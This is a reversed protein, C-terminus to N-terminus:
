SLAAQIDGATVAPAQDLRLALDNYLTTAVMATTVTTQVFSVGYTGTGGTGTGLSTITTGSTVGSGQILQGVALAGRTVLSVALTSGTLTGLFAAAQGAVGIQIDIIQAWSGLLAVGAYYRSAFITSGIKARPGGDAGAFASIIAAQVLARANSPVGNNNNLVVQVALDVTDPIEFLVQYAPAPPLYEPSPDSVTEITNGNYGCGPAKHSWIARAIEQSDGGLVAVYLSNPGLLVGGRSVPAGIVNETVYCDLVGTVALVAGQVADLIGVANVAVSANRRDEFESRSEVNRGLIGDASTQASDWGFVAQYIKWGEADAPCDVPGNVACAFPLVVEGGSITGRRQCLYLNGDQAQAIAGVPISVGDLGRCSMQVVTPAGPIRTMFYIRGIGDQMRGSNFAPDVQNTYWIFEANKDGIIAAATTALQGQPTSLGPNVGGGLDANIDALVGALVDAETPAVFGRDGFTPQPVSTM